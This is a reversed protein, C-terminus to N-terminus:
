YIEGCLNNQRNECKGCHHWIQSQCAQLIGHIGMKTKVGLLLQFSNTLSTLFMVNILLAIFFFREFVDMFVYRELKPQRVKWFNNLALVELCELTFAGLCELTEVVLNRLFGSLAKDVRVLVHFPDMM